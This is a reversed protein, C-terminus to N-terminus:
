RIPDYKKMYIGFINFLLFYIFYKLALKIKGEKEFRRISVIVPINLIQIKGFKSARIILDIDEHTVLKENFGNIKEFIEKKIAIFYGAAQPKFYKLISIAFNYILYYFSYLLNSNYTWVRPYVLDYKKFYKLLEELMTPLILTDADIFVLYKGKAYEAGLNRALAIGRKNTVVIKDAYKKAIKLTKDKSNSDSVIIEYKKRNLTQHSIAILTPEIYKEENYTPIIVSILPNKVKRIEILKEM